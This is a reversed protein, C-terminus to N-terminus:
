ACIVPCKDKTEHHHNIKNGRCKISDMDFTCPYNENYLECSPMPNFICEICVDYTSIHRVCLGNEGFFPHFIIYNQIINNIVNILEYNILLLKVNNIFIKM